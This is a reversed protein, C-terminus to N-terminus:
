SQIALHSSSLPLEIDVITGKNLESSIHLRGHHEEIIKYCMMLGLGTGKEKLSYFPEGLRSIRDEPIGCGEDIIRILIFNDELPKTQIFINGGNPMAEIANKLINIFVQKLQNGDCQIDYVYDFHDMIIHVSHMIATPLIFTVVEEILTQINCTQISLVQPKSMAMFQSTISEMQSIESLMVDIYWKQEESIEPLLLTLFGKLSTLPNRIEHAIGATLQGVVALKESKRLLKETEKLETVDRGMVILGKRSGDPHYLPVKSISLILDSDDRHIIFEEGHLIQRQQWALEDIEECHLFAERYAENYQILESDKKGHYPVHHFNFCSLAYDNAELWRGEHDKFIVFAPMSNVLTRLRKESEKLMNEIRESKELPKMIAYVGTLRNQVFIPVLKTVVDLLFGNKHYISLIYEQQNDAETNKINQLVQESIHAELISTINKQELELSTYGLIREASPNIHLIVGELNLSIISDPNHEFLSAYMETLSRDQIHNRLRRSINPHRKKQTPSYKKRSM